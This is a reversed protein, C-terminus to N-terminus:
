SPTESLRYYNETRSLIYIQPPDAQGTASYVYRTEHLIEYGSEYFQGAFLWKVTATPGLGSCSTLIFNYNLKSWVVVLRYQTLLAASGNQKHHQVWKNRRGCRRPTYLLIKTIQGERKEGQWRMQIALMQIDYKDYGTCHCTVANDLSSVTNWHLIETDHNLSWIDKM